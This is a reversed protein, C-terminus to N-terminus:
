TNSDRLCLTIPRPILITISHLPLNTLPGFPSSVSCTCTLSQSSLNSQAVQRHFLFSSASWAVFVIFWFVTSAVVLRGSSCLSVFFFDSLLQKVQDLVQCPLSSRQVLSHIQSITASTTSPKCPPNPTQVVISLQTFMTNM